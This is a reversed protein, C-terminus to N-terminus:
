TWRGRIQAVADVAHCHLKHRGSADAKAIRLATAPVASQRPKRGSGRGPRQGQVRWPCHGKSGDMKTPSHSLASVSESVGFNAREWEGVLPSIAFTRSRQQLDRLCLRRTPELAFGKRRTQELQRRDGAHTSWVGRRPITYTR